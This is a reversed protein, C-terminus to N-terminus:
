CEERREGGRVLFTPFNGGLKKVALGTTALKKGTESYQGYLIGAYFLNLYNAEMSFCISGDGDRNWLNLLRGRFGGSESGAQGM